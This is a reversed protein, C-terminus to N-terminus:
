TVKLQYKRNSAKESVQAIRYYSTGVNHLCWAGIRPKLLQNYLSSYIVEVVQNYLSSSKHECFGGTKGSRGDKGYLNIFVVEASYSAVALLSFARKMSILKLWAYDCKLFLLDRQSIPIKVVM